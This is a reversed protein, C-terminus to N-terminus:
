KVLIYKTNQKSGTQMIKVILTDKGKAMDLIERYVPNKKNLWWNMRQGNVLVPIIAKRVPEGKMNTTDYTQFKEKLDITIETVKNEELKLAPLKEYITETQTGLEAKEQEIWNQETMKQKEKM